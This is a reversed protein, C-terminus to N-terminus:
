ADIFKGYKKLFSLEIDQTAGNRHKAIILNTPSVESPLEDSAHSYYDKRYLFMIIDADQEIAGSDRLDSMIPRKDERKEVSRSLQSLCIITIGLDRAIRKLQRSITSIENQRDNGNSGPTTILQLYDIICLNVNEDRKLKHLKSQIQQVTIGPTDDIFIRTHDLADKALGLEKWEEKQIGQGHRLKDGEVETMMSLIRQTLQDGPMELSFIVVGNKAKQKPDSTANYALNLAFATKGMSPRAALIIFDQAQLGATVRDLEAFGTTIGTLREKSSALKKLKTLVNQASDGIKTTDNRKLEFDIELLKTQATELVERMNNSTKTLNSVENILGKLQREASQEHVIKIYSDVNEDSYYKAAVAFIYSTNGAKALKGQNELWDAVTIESVEQNEIQLEEIAQFILKHSGSFFDDHSLNILIDPLANPSKLAIALVSQEAENLIEITAKEDNM